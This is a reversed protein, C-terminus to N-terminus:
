HYAITEEKVEHNQGTETTDTVKDVGNPNGRVEGLLALGSLARLEGLLWGTRGLLVISGALSGLAGSHRRGGGVVRVPDRSVVDVARLGPLDLASRPGLAACLDNLSVKM